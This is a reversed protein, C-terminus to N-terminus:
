SLEEGWVAELVRGDRVARAVTAILDAPPLEQFVAGSREGSHSPGDAVILPIGLGGEKPGSRVLRHLRRSRSSMRLSSTDLLTAADEIAHRRTWNPFLMLANEGLKKEVFRRVEEAGPDDQGDGKGASPGPQSQKREQQMQRRVWPGIESTRIDLAQLGCLVEIALVDAVNEVVQRVHRAANAAMSVHDEANASTPISDVTSPHCLVKNEAVLSAATYQTLMYGSELGPTGLTLSAPLGRNHNADLLLQIRREAIDALEALAIKLLDLAIAVPQGHFNAASCHYTDRLSSEVREDRPLDELYRFQFEIPKGDSNSERGFNRFFLPNDNASNIEIEAVRRAYAIADYSAGHVPPISRLSYDDQADGVLACRNKLTSDQLLHWLEWATLMQGAHPRVAGVHPEFARTHGGVAQHTLSGSINAVRFLTAADHVALALIATSLTTGNTLALGDKVQLDGADLPRIGAVELAERGTLLVRSDGRKWIETRSSADTRLWWERRDMGDRWSPEEGGKSNGRNQIVWARGEGILVLFLHALSCLDGSCGVSGKEPVYPVVGRNLVQQLRDVLYPSIGSRGQAFAALRLLMMGRIVETPLPRGVGAAHSYLLNVSLRAADETPVLHKRHTGFGTTVGYVLKGRRLYDDVEKRSEELGRRVEPSIEVRRYLGESDPRAVEALVAPTLLGQSSHSQRWRRLHKDLAEQNPPSSYEQVVSEALDEFHLRSIQLPEGDHCVHNSSM